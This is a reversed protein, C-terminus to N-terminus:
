ILFKKIFVFLSDSLPDQIHDFYNKMEIIDYNDSSAILINIYFYFFAVRLLVIVIGSRRLSMRPYIATLSILLIWFMLIYM